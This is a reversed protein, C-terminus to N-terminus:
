IKKRTRKGKNRKLMEKEKRRKNENLWYDSYGTQGIWNEKVRCVCRIEGGPLAKCKQTHHSGPESCIPCSIIFSDRGIVKKYKECEPNNCTVNYRCIRESRHNAMFNGLM